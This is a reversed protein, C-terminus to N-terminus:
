MVFPVGHRALKTRRASAAKRGDFGFPTLKYPAINLFEYLHRRPVVDPV